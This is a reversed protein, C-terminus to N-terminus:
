RKILRNLLSPMVNNRRRKSYYPKLRPDTHWRKLSKQYENANIIGTKFANTGFDHAIQDVATTWMGRRSESKIQGVIAKAEFEENAPAANSGGNANDYQAAHVVEEVAFDGLVSAQDKKDLVDVIGFNLTITGGKEDAAFDNATAPNQITLSEGDPGELTTSWNGDFSAGTTSNTNNDAKIVYRNDSKKLQKYLNKYTGSSKHKRLARKAIRKERGSIEGWDIVM